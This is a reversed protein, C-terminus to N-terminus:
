KSRNMKKDFFDNLESGNLIYKTLANGSKVDNRTVYVNKQDYQIRIEYNSKLEIGIGAVLASTYNEVETIENEPVSNFWSLIENVELESLTVNKWKWTPGDQFGITMKVNVVENSAIEKHPIVPEEISEERDYLFLLVLGLLVIGFIIALSKKNNVM